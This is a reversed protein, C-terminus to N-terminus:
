CEPPLQIPFWSEEEYNEDLQALIGSLAVPRITILAIQGANCLFTTKRHKLLHNNLTNKCLSINLYQFALEHENKWDFTGKLNAFIQLCQANESFM